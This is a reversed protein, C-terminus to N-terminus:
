MLEEQYKEIWDQNPKSFFFFLLLFVTSTMHLGVVVTFHCGTFYSLRNEINHTLFLAFLKKQQLKTKKKRLIQINNVGFVSNTAFNRFSTPVPLWSLCFLFVIKRRLWVSKSIEEAEWTQWKTPAKQINIYKPTVFLCINVAAFYMDKWRERSREDNQISFVACVVNLFLILFFFWCFFILFFFCFYTKRTGDAAADLGLLNSNLLRKAFILKVFSSSIFINRDTKKKKWKRFFHGFYDWENSTSHFTCRIVHPM